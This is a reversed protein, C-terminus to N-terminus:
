GIRRMEAYCDTLSLALLIAEGLSFVEIYDGAVLQFTRHIQSYCGASPEEHNIVITSPILSGNKGLQLGSAFSTSSTKLKASVTYLGDAPAILRSKNSSTSHMSDTDFDELNWSVATATYPVTAHTTQAESTRVSVAANRSVVVGDVTSKFLGTDEQYFEAGDHATIAALVTSNRVPLIGGASVTYPAVWTVTPDGGGSAPVNIEAITFARAPPSPASPSAAASGADYGRVAEPVSSGDSEAPDSIQVYVIDKRPLTAHAADIPGTAEADFAFSYVSAEDAAQLDANGAFPDATWDTATVTVTTSSTGPRVGTLGGLPRAPTAGSVHPSLLQRVERGSYEPEGAVADVPWINDVM